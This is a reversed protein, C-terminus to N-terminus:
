RQLRYILYTGIKSFKTNMTFTWREIKFPRLTSKSCLYFKRSAVLFQNEEYYEFDFVSVLINRSRVSSLSEIRIKASVLNFHSKQFYITDKEVSAPTEFLNGSRVSKRLTFSAQGRLISSVLGISLRLRRIFILRLSQRHRRTKEEQTAIRHQSRQGM